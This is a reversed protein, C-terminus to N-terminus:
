TAAARKVIEERHADQPTVEVAERSGIPALERRRRRLSGSGVSTTNV